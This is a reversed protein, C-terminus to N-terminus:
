MEVRHDDHIWLIGRLSECLRDVGSRQWCRRPDGKGQNQSRGTQLTPVSPQQPAPPPHPLPRPPRQHGCVRPAPGSSVGRPEAPLGTVVCLLMVNVVFFYLRITTVEELNRCGVKAPNVDGFQSKYSRALKDLSTGFPSSKLVNKINERIIALKSGVEGPGSGHVEEEENKTGLPVIKWKFGDLKLDVTESLGNLFLDDMAEFGMETVDISHGTEQEYLDRFEDFSIGEESIEEMDVLEKLLKKVYEPAKRMKPVNGSLKDLDSMAINKLVKGTNFNFGENTYRQNQIENVLEKTKEDPVGQLMTTGNSLEIVNLVDPMSAVMDLVTNFGLLGFPLPKGVLSRYEREFEELLIGYKYRILTSRINKKAKEVAENKHEEIHKM